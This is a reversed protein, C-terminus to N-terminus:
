RASTAASRAHMRMALSARSPREKYDAPNWTKVEEPNASLANAVDSVPNSLAQWDNKIDIFEDLLDRNEAM